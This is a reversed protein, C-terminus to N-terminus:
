AGVAHPAAAESGAGSRDHALYIGGDREVLAQPFLIDGPGLRMHRHQRTLPDDALGICVRDAGPQVGDGSFIFRAPNRHVKIQFVDMHHRLRAQRLQDARHGTPQVRRAAAIVLYRGVKAEPHAVGNILHLSAKNAELARQHRPRLIMGVGHHRAKGMQLRRLRHRQAVM